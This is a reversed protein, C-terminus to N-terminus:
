LKSFYASIMRDNTSSVKVTFDRKSSRLFHLCKNGYKFEVHM